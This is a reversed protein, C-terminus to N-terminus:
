LFAMFWAFQPQDLNSAATSNPNIVGCEAIFTSMVPAAQLVFATISGRLVRRFPLSQTEVVSISADLDHKM